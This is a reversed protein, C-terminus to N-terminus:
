KVEKLYEMIGEAIAKATKNKRAETLMDNRENENSLFGIECLIAPMTTHNIVYFQSKFLGRDKAYSIEKIFHKHVTEALPKSYEHYWHTEIGNPDTSVTSNVHVSVFIDPQIEETFSVRDELSVYTDNTRTLQVKYGHSKLVAEVRKSIDLTIDKENVGERIAGYDSGGHGPDIVVSKSKNKSKKAPKEIQKIEETKEITIRLAKGDISKDIKIVDDKNIKLGAKVGIKPLLDFSMQKFISNQITKSLDQENYSQVNFLYVNLQNDTRRISYVIPSTFSLILESTKSNIKKVFAKNINSTVPDVSSHDLKESNIVFLSQSDKSYVPIFKDANESTIVVRAKNFEFQGIKATDSCNGASCLLIDKNRINKNVVANPLDIVLRKPSDLLFSKSLTFEGIGNILLGSNKAQVSNIFYKTRLKLNSSLDVAYVSDYTEGTSNKLTSGQFADQIDQLTKSDSQKEIPLPEKKVFQSNVTISSFESLNATDDYVRNFYDSSLKLKDLKAIILDDMQFVDIKSTDFDEELTIVARVINPNTSFQALRVEKIRSKEFVLQQKEGILISNEIDFYIRNPNELKVFKLHKINGTIPNQSTTSVTILSSANDYNLATVKASIEEAFSPALFGCLLFIFFIIFFLIRKM